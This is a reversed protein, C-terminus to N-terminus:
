NIIKKMWIEKQKGYVTVAENYNEITPARFLTEWQEIVGKDGTQVVTDLVSENFEDLVEWLSKRLKRIIVRRWPDTMTSEKDLISFCQRISAKDLVSADTPVKIKLLISMWPHRVDDIYKSDQSLMSPLFLQYSPSLFSEPPSKRTNEAPEQNMSMLHNNVTFSVHSPLADFCIGCQFGVGKWGFYNGTTSKVTALKILREILADTKDSTFGESHFGAVSQKSKNQSETTRNCIMNESQKQGETDLQRLHLLPNGITGEAALSACLTAQELPVDLPLGLCRNVDMETALNSLLNRDIPLNSIGVQPHQGFMLHYPMRGGIGRHIQTNCRWQIFPLSQAWHKSKNEHMWNKIKEEVTRNRREIGGNSESHRPKGTVLLTGPWLRKIENIM